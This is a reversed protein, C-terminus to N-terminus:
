GGAARYGASTRRTEDVLLRYASDNIRCSSHDYPANKIIERIRIQPARAELEGIRKLYHASDQAIKANLDLVRTLYRAEAKAAEAAMRTEAADAGASLGLVYAAGGSVAALLLGCLILIVRDGVM